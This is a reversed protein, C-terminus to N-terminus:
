TIDCFVCEWGSPLFPSMTLFVPGFCVLCPLVLGALDQTLPSLHIQGELKVEKVLYRKRLSVGGRYAARRPLYGMATVDGTDQLCWQFETNVKVAKYSPKEPGEVM